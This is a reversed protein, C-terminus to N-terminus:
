IKIVVLFKVLAVRNRTLAEGDVSVEVVTSAVGMEFLVSELVIVGSVCWWFSLVTLVGKVICSVRM